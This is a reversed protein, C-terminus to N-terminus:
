NHEFFNTFIIPSKATELEELSTGFVLGLEENIKGELFSRDEKNFM